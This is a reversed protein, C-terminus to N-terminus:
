ASTTTQRVAHTRIMGWMTVCSQRLEARCLVYTRRMHEIADSLSVVSVFTDTYLIVRDYKMLKDLEAAWALSSKLKM